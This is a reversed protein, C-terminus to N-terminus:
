GINIASTGVGRQIDNLERIFPIKCVIKLFVIFGLTLSFMISTMKNRDQHAILNKLTLVRLSKGEFILVLRSVLINLYPMINTSIIGLAMILGFLITLFISMALSFNFSVLSLPLLYYVGFGYSLAIVGFVIFGTVDKKNKQLINVYMAKTKSRQVDLSDTL